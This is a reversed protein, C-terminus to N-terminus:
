LRKNIPVGGKESTDAQAGQAKLCASRPHNARCASCVHAFKCPNYTCKPGDRTNFLHCIHLRVPHPGGVPLAVSVPPAVGM